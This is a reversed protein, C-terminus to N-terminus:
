LQGGILSQKKLSDQGLIQWECAHQKFHYLLLQLSQSVFCVSTTFQCLIWLVAYKKNILM